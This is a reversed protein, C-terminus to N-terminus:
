IQAEMSSLLSTNKKGRFPSLGPDPIYGLATGLIGSPIHSGACVESLQPDSWIEASDTCDTTHQIRTLARLLIFIFIHPKKKTHVRIGFRNRCGDM